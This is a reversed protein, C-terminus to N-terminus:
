ILSTNVTRHAVGAVGPYSSFVNKTDKITNDSPSHTNETLDLRMKIFRYLKDCELELDVLDLEKGGWRISPDRPDCMISLNRPGLQCVLAPHEGTIDRVGTMYNQYPPNKIEDYIQTLKERDQGREVGFLSKAKRKLTQMMGPPRYEKYGYGADKWGERLPDPRQPNFDDYSTIRKM